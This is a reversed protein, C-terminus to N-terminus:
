ERLLVEIVEVFEIANSKLNDLVEKNVSTETGYQLEERLMKADKPKNGSTRRILENFKREVSQM